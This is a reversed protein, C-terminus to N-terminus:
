KDDARDEEKGEDDEEEEAQEDDEEDDGKVEICISNVMKSCTGTM